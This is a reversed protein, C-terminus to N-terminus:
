YGHAAHDGSRLAAAMRPSLSKPRRPPTRGLSPKLADLVLALDKPELLSVSLGLRHPSGPPRSAGRVDLGLKRAHRCYSVLRDADAVRAFLHRGCGTSWWNPPSARSDAAWSRVTLMLRLCMM